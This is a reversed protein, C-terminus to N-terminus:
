HRPLDRKGGVNKATQYLAAGPLVVFVYVMVVLATVLSLALVLPMVVMGALRSDPYITLPTVAWEFLRNIPEFPNSRQSNSM